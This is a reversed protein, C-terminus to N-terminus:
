VLLVISSSPKKCEPSRPLSSSFLTNNMVPLAFSSMMVAPPSFMGGTMMYFSILYAMGKKAFTITTPSWLFYRVQKNDRFSYGGALPLSSIEQWYISAFLPQPALVISYARFFGFNLSIIIFPSLLAM